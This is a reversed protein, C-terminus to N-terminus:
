YFHVNDGKSRYQVLRIVIHRFCSRLQGLLFHEELLVICLQLCVHDSHRFKHNQPNLEWHSKKEEFISESLFLNTELSSFTM